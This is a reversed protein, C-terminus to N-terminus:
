RDTPGETNVLFVRTAPVICLAERTSKLGPDSMLRMLAALGAAGSVGSQVAPDGAIPGGFLKVASRADDDTIQITADVTDRLVPWALPSVEACRLGAMDTPECRPLAVPRGARLSSAVSASGTPEVVALRPRSTGYSAQLWGAVAGALSGVGAQVIVVDPPSAGWAQSAEDLMRTYGAMIWRPIEEYGEWATDSVVTWGHRDAEHAMIRVCEDYDADAEVVIASEARIAASRAPVTGRPVYVHATLGSLRAARALARGHNGATACAVDGVAGREILRAVAYRTGLIKFAPLGFRCSEDKVLVEALGLTGALGALRLLPTVPADALGAYFARVADLEAPEFFTM